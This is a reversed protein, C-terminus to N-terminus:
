CFVVSQVVNDIDIVCSAFRIDRHCIVITVFNRNTCFECTVLRSTVRGNNIFIMQLSRLLVFFKSRCGITKIEVLFTYIYITRSINNKSVSVLRSNILGGILLQYWSCIARIYRTWHEKEYKDRDCFVTINNSHYCHFGLYTFLLTGINIHSFFTANDKICLLYKEFYINIQFVLQIYRCM